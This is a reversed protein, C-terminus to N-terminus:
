ILMFSYNLSSKIQLVGVDRLKKDIESKYRSITPSYDFEYQHLKEKSGSGM